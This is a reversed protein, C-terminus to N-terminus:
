VMNMFYAMLHVLINHELKRLMDADTVIICFLNNSQLESPRVHPGRVFDSGTKEIKFPNERFQNRDMLNWILYSLIWPFSSVNILNLWFLALGSVLLSRLRGTQSQIMPAMLIRLIAFFLFFGTPIRVVKEYQLACLQVDYM